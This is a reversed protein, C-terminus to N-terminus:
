LKKLLLGFLALTNIKHRKSGAEKLIPATAAEKLLKDARTKGLDLQLQQSFMSMVMEEKRNRKHM